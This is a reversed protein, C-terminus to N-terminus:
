FPKGGLGGLPPILPLELVFREKCIKREEKEIIKYYGIVTQCLATLLSCNDTILRVIIKSM